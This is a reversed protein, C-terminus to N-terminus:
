LVNILLLNWLFTIYYDFICFVLVFIVYMTVLRRGTVRFSYLLYNGGDSDLFQSWLLLQLYKFLFFHIYLRKVVNKLRNVKTSM